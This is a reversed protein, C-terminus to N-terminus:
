GEPNLKHGRCCSEPMIIDSLWLLMDSLDANPMINRQNRLIQTNSIRDDSNRIESKSVQHAPDNNEIKDLERTVNITNNIVNGQANDVAAIRYYYKSSSELGTSSYSNAISTGEPLTKGTTVSFGSATGRYINYHNLDIEKNQDWELNVRNAATESVIPKTVPNPPTKDIIINGPKVDGKTKSSKM